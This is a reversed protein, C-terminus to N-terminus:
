NFEYQFISSRYLLLVDESSALSSSSPFPKSGLDQNPPLFDPGTKYKVSVLSDGQSPPTSDQM